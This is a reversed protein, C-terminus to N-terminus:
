LSLAKERCTNSCFHDNLGRPMKLCMICPDVQGYIKADERHRQSCYESQQHTASDVFVPKNCGKLRCTTPPGSSTSTSQQSSFNDSPDWNGNGHGGSGSPTSTVQISVRAQTQIPVPGGPLQNSNSYHNSTAMPDTKSRQGPASNRESIPLGPLPPSPPYQRKTQNNPDLDQIGPSTPSTPSYFQQDFGSSTPTLTGPSIPDFQGSPIPGGMRPSMLSGGSPNPTIPPSIMMPGQSNPGPALRSYRTNGQNFGQSPHIPNSPPNQTYPPPFQNWSRQGVQLPPQGHGGTNIQPYMAQWIKACNKGCFQHGKHVPRQGCQKCLIPGPPFMGGTAKAKSGCIKGCYNYPPFKPKQHCYDCWGTPPGQM